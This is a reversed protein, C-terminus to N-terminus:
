RVSAPASESSSLAGRGPSGAGSSPMAPPSMAPSSGACIRKKPGRRRVAPLHSILNLPPICLAGM